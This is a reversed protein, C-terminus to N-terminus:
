VNNRRFFWSNMVQYWSSLREFPSSTTRNHYSDFLFAKGQPHNERWPELHGLVDDLMCDGDIDEKHATPHFHDGHKDIEFKDQLWARRADVWGFCHEYPRTVWIIQHGQSRLYAIGEQALPLTPLHRWWKHDRFAREVDAAEEEEWLEWFNWQLAETDPNKDCIQCIAKILACTVEDVDVIIKM